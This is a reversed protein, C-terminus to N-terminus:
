RKDNHTIINIVKNTIFKKENETVGIYLIILSVVVVSVIGVILFRFLGEDMCRHLYIPIPLSILVVEILRKIVKSLYYSFSLNIMKRLMFLRICLAVIEIALHTWFVTQPAFGLKLFVYSIPVILLLVCGVVQQYQRVYGTAMVSTILPNTLSTIWTTLLIIRLFPVTYEPVNGLWLSLVFHTEILFPLSLLFILFFSFRSSREVLSHMYATDGSAYSKTIQPNIAMQFNTVFQCVASQVQVAIGRAANVVPGFFINLLINLGQSYGMAALNGFLSWGAFSSIEGFLNRNWYFHYKSEKFHRNSYIVYCLCSFFQVFLMMLAYVILKDNGAIKLFMAVSLKSIAEFISIFAFASMKEYAIIIAHFPVTMLMVITSAISCQFIWFAANISVESIQMKEYLFWLGLTECLILIVFSAIVYINLCTSFIKNLNDNDGSGLAFTLYRQTAGAMPGAIFGFMAVIGGVVNYVGYDVVGLTQLIVRSTYLSILMILMMRFYLFVTNKAIRKNNYQNNGM